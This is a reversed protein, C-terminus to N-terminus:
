LFRFFFCDVDTIISHWPYDLMIKVFDKPKMKIQHTKLSAGSEFTCQFRQLSVCSLQFLDAEMLRNTDFQFTVASAFLFSLLHLYTIM